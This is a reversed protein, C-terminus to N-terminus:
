RKGAPLPTDFPVSDPESPKSDSNELLVLLNKLGEDDLTGLAKLDGDVLPKVDDRDFGLARVDRWFGDPFYDAAEDARVAGGMNAPLPFLDDITNFMGGEKGPKEGIMALCSRGVADDYDFGVDIELKLGLAQFWGWSKSLPTVVYSAIADFDIPEGNEDPKDKIRFTFEFVHGDGFRPNPLNKEGIKVCTVPYTGTPVKPKGEQPIVYAMEIEEEPCPEKAAPIGMSIALRYSLAIAEPTWKPGM